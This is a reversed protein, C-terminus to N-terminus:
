IIGRLKKMRKDSLKKAKYWEGRVFNGHVEYIDTKDAQYDYMPLESFRKVDRVLGKQTGDQVIVYFKENKMM